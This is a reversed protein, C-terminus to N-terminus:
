RSLRTRRGSGIAEKRREEGYVIAQLRPEEEAPREESGGLVETPCSRDAGGLPMLLSGRRSTPWPPWTQSHSPPPSLSLFTPLPPLRPPTPKATPPLRKVPPSSSLPLPLSSNSTTAGDLSWRSCVSAFSPSLFRSPLSRPLPVVDADLLRGPSNPSPSHSCIFHPKCPTV